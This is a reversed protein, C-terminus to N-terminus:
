GATGTKTPNPPTMFPEKGDPSGDKMEYADVLEKIPQMVVWQTWGLRYDLTHTRNPAEYM